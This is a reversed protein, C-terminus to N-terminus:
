SKPSYTENQFVAAHLWLGVTLYVLVVHRIVAKPPKIHGGMNM